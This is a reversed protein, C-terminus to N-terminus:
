IDMGLFILIIDNFMIADLLCTPKTFDGLYNYLFALAAAGWSWQNVTTLDDFYKLYVVCSSSGAKDSFLTCGVLYLLFTRICRTRYWEM